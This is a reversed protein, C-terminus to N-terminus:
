GPLFKETFTRQTKAKKYKKNAFILPRLFAGLKLKKTLDQESVCLFFEPPPFPLHLETMVETDGNFGYPSPWICALEWGSVINM